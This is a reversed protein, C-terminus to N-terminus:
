GTTGSINQLKSKPSTNVDEIIVRAGAQGGLQLPWIEKM